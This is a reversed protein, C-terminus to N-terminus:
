CLSNGCSSPIYTHLVTNCYFLCLVNGISFYIQKRKILDSKVRTKKNLHLSVGDEKKVTMYECKRGASMSAELSKLKGVLDKSESKNRLLYISLACAYQTARSAIFCPSCQFLSTQREAVCM